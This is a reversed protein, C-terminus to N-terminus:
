STRGHHHRFETRDGARGWRLSQRSSVDSSKNKPSGVKDTCRNQAGLEFFRETAGHSVTIVDGVRLGLSALARAAVDPALESRILRTSTYFGAALLQRECRPCFRERVGLREQLKFVRRSFGCGPCDLRQVLPRGGFGLSAAAFNAATSLLGFADGITLDRPTERLETIAWTAHDFRCKPNRRFRTVYHHHTEAEILVQQGAIAVVGNKLLKESEIAQLAAALAGLHAPANTSPTKPDADDCAHRTGADSYDREDWTCEHCPQDKAPVYSNVRALLASAEVGADIFKMGLRWAIENASRRGAKSDLCGFLVDGRLRGLPINELRDVISRVELRPNIRRARRAQVEAKPKGVDAPEIDQSHLNKAEYLDFDVLTLRVVGPQRTLLPVLHSGINGGAGAVVFHLGANVPAGKRQVRRLPNSRATKM